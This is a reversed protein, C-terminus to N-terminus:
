SAPHSRTRVTKKQFINKREFFFLLPHSCLGSIIEFRFYFIQACLGEILSVFGRHITIFAMMMMLGVLQSPMCRPQSLVVLSYTLRSKLQMVFYAFWPLLTSRVGNRLSAHGAMKCKAVVAYWHDDLANEKVCGLTITLLEQSLVSLNQFTDVPWDAVPCELETSHRKCGYNLPKTQLWIKKIRISEVHGWKECNGRTLHWHRMKGWPFFPMTLPEQSWM